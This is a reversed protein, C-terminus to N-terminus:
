KSCCSLQQQTSPRFSSPLFFFLLSIPVSPGLTAAFCCSIHLFCLFSILFVVLVGTFPCWVSPNMFGCMHPCLTLHANSDSPLPPLLPFSVTPSLHPPPAAASVLRRRETLYSIVSSCINLCMILPTMLREWVCVCVCLQSAPLIVTLHCM